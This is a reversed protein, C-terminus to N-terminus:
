ALQTLPFGRAWEIPWPITYVAQIAARKNYYAAAILINVIKNSFPNDDVWGGRGGGRKVMRSLLLSQLGSHDVTDHAIAYGSLGKWSCFHLKFILHATM